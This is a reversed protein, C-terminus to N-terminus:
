SLIIIKNSYGETDTLEGSAPSADVATEAIRSSSSHIRNSDHRPFCFGFSLGRTAEILSVFKVIGFEATIPPDRTV